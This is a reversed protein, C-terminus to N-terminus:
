GNRKRFRETLESLKKLQCDEIIYTLEYFKKQSVNHKKMFIRNRIKM